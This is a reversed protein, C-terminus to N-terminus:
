QEQAAMGAGALGAVGYQIRPDTPDFKGTNKTASKIDRTITNFSKNLARLDINIKRDQTARDAVREVQRLNREAKQTEAIVNLRFDSM